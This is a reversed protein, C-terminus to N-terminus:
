WNDFYTTKETELSTYYQGVDFTKVKEQNLKLHHSCKNKAMYEKKKNTQKLM